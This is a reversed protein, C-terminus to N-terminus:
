RQRGPNEVLEWLDYSGWRRLYRRRLRQPTSLWEEAARVLLVEAQEVPVAGNPGDIEFLDTLEAWLIYLRGSVYARTLWDALEGCVDNAAEYTVWPDGAPITVEKILPDVARYLRRNRFRSAIVSPRVEYLTRKRRSM